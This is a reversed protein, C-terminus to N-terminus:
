SVRLRSNFKEWTIRADAIKALIDYNVRIFNKLAEIDKSKLKVRHKDDDIVQPDDKSITMTLLNERNFKDGYDNQFKLRKGHKGKHYTQSIDIWINVPLKTDVKRMNSMEKVSGGVNLYRIMKDFFTRWGIKEDALKSLLSYNNVVFLKLAEIDRSRINVKASDKSIVQPADKSVSMFLSNSLNSRNGHDNQFKIIKGYGWDLYLGCSDLWINVPLGTESKTLTTLMDDLTFVEFDTNKEKLRKM